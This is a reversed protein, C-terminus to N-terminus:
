FVHYVPAVSRLFLSLLFPSMLFLSRLLLSKLLMLMFLMRTFTTPNFNTTATTTLARRVYNYCQLLLLLVAGAAAAVSVPLKKLLPTFATTYAEIAAFGGPIKLIQDIDVNNKKFMRTINPEMYSVSYSNNASNFSLLKLDYASTPLYSKRIQKTKNSINANLPLSM